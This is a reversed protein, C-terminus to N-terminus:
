GYLCMADMDLHCKVGITRQCAHLMVICLCIALFCCLCDTMMTLICEDPEHKPFGIMETFNAGLFLMQTSARPTSAFQFWELSLLVTRSQQFGHCKKDVSAPLEAVQHCSKGALVESTLVWYLLSCGFVWTPGLQGPPGEHVVQVWISRISRFYPGVPGLPRGSM